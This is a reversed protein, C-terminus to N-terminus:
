KADAVESAADFENSCQLIEFRKRGIRNKLLSIIGTGWPEASVGTICKQWLRVVLRSSWFAPALSFPQTGLFRDCEMLSQSSGTHESSIRKERISLNWFM